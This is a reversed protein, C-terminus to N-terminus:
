QCFLGRITLWCWSPKFSDIHVFLQAMLTNLLQSLIDSSLLHDAKRWKKPQISVSASDLVREHANGLELEHSIDLGVGVLEIEHVDEGQQLLSSQDRLVRPVELVDLFEVFAITLGQTLFDSMTPLM